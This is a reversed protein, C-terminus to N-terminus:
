ECTLLGKTSLGKLTGVAGTFSLSGPSTSSKIFLVGRFLSVGSAGAVSDM